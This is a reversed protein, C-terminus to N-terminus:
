RDNREREKLAREAEEKTLFVTKGFDDDYFELTNGIDVCDFFMSYIIGRGRYVIKCCYSEVVDWGGILKELLLFTKDGVKCLPVIVGNALLHDAIDQATHQTIEGWPVGDLVWQTLEILRERNTM